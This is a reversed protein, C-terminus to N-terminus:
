WFIRLYIPTLSPRFRTDSGKDTDSTVIKGKDTDSTEFFRTDTDVDPESVFKHGIDQGDGGM